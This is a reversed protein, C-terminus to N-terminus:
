IRHLSLIPVNYVPHDRIQDFSYVLVPMIKDNTKSLFVPNMPKRPICHM